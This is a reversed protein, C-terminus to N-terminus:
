YIIAINLPIFGKQDFAGDIKNVIELVGIVRHVFIIHLPLKTTFIALKDKITIPISLTTQATHGM